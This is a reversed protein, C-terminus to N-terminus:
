TKSTSAHKMLCEEYETRLKLCFYINDDNEKLCDELTKKINFCPYRTKSLNRQDVMVKSIDRNLLKYKNM